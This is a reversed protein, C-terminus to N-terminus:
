WRSVRGCNDDGDAVVDDQDDHDSWRVSFLDASLTLAAAAHDRTM